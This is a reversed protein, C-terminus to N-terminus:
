HFKLKVFLSHLLQRVLIKPHLDGKQVINALEDFFLAAAEPAQGCSSKVLDLLGLIQKFVDQSLSALAQKGSGSDM